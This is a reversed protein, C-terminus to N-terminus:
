EYDEQQEMEEEENGEKMQQKQHTKTYMIANTGGKGGGTAAMLLFVMSNNCIGETLVRFAEDSEYKPAGKPCNLELMIIDHDILKPAMQTCIRHLKNNEPVNQHWEEDESNSNGRYYSTSKSTREWEAENSLNILTSSFNPQSFYKQIM